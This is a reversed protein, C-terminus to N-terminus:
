YPSSHLTPNPPLLTSSSITLLLFYVSAPFHHTTFIGGSCPGTPFDDMERGRNQGQLCQYRIGVRPKGTNTPSGVTM